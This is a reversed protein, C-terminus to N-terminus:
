KKFEKTNLKLLNRQESIPTVFVPSSPIVLKNAVIANLLILDPIKIKTAVTLIKKMRMMKERKMGQHNVVLLTLVEKVAAGGFKLKKPSPQSM